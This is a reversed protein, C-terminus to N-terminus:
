KLHRALREDRIEELTIDGLHSLIGVLSDSIPTESRNGDGKKNYLPPVTKDQKVFPIVKFEVQAKGEPIERPVELTIRRNAPVDVTQTITM